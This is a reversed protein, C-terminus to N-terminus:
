SAIAGGLESLKILVETTVKVGLRRRVDVAAELKAVADDGVGVDVEMNVAMSGATGADVNEVADDVVCAMLGVCLAFTSDDDAAHAVLPTIAPITMPETSPRMRKPTSM